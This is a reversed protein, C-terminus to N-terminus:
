EYAKHLLMKTKRFTGAIESKLNQLEFVMDYSKYNYIRFLTFRTTLITLHNILLKVQTNAYVNIPFCYRM